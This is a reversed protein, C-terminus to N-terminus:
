EGRIDNKMQRFKNGKSHKGSKILEKWREFTEIQKSQGALKNTLEAIVAEQSTPNIPNQTPNTPSPVETEPTTTGFLKDLGGVMEERRGKSLYGLGQDKLGKIDKGYTEIDFKNEQGLLYKSRELSQKQFDETTKRLARGYEPSEQAMKANVAQTNLQKYRSITDARETESLKSIAEPKSMDEYIKELGQYANIRSSDVSQIYAKSEQEEKLKDRGSLSAALGAMGLMQNISGQIM